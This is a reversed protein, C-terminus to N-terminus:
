QDHDHRPIVCAVHCNGAVKTKAKAKGHSEDIEDILGPATDGSSRENKRTRRGQERLGKGRVASFLPRGHSGYDLFSFAWAKEIPEIVGHDGTM